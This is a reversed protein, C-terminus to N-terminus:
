IVMNNGILKSIRVKDKKLTKEIFRIPSKKYLNGEYVESLKYNNDLNLDYNNKNDYEIEYDNINTGNFRKNKITVNGKINIIVANDNLNYKNILESPFDINLIIPIKALSKKKNNAITIMIGEEKFIKSEIKKFKEMHNTIISVRKYQKIIKKINQYSIESLDNVLIAIATEEKKIKMKETLYDLVEITLVEFLWKGDCIEYKYTYLNNVYNINLKLKKSLVIKKCNTRELLAKTKLALREAQREDLIEDKIPLMLKDGELNIINFFKLIINPKDLEQIYYM